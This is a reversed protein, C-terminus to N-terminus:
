GNHGPVFAVFMCYLVLAAAVMTFATILVDVQRM